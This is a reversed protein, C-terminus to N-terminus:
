WIGERYLLRDCTHESGGERMCVSGDGPEDTDHSRCSSHSGMVMVSTRTLPTGTNVSATKGLTHAFVGMHQIHTSASTLFQGGNIKWRIMSACDRLCVWFEDVHSTQRAPKSQSARDRGEPAPIVPPNGHRGPM